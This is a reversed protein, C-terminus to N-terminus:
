LVRDSPPYAADGLIYFGEPLDRLLKSFGSCSFATRDNQATYTFCGEIEVCFANKVQVNMGFGKKHGSYFRTPLPHDRLSPRRLRIFLGDMAGVARTIINGTSRDKFDAAAREVAAGSPWICDLHSLKNMANIVRRVVAYATSRAIVHCDMLEFVSAGALWRVGMAVQYEVPIAGNRLNGMKRDRELAPRLWTVLCIFDEYEMRFRLRFTRDALMPRIYESWVRRERPVLSSR